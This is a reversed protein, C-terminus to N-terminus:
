PVSTDDLLRVMIQYRSWPSEQWPEERVSVDTLDPGADAFCEECLAADHEIDAALEAEEDHSLISDVDDELDRALELLLHTDQIHISETPIVSGDPARLELELSREHAGAEAADAYETATLDPGRREGCEVASERSSTPGDRWARAARTALPLLTEGVETTILDGM